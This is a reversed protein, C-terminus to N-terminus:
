FKQKINLNTQASVAIEFDFKADGTTPKVILDTASSMYLRIPNFPGNKIDLEEASFEVPDNNADDNLSLAKDGGNKKIVLFLNDIVNNDVSKIDIKVSKLLSFLDDGGDATRGFLDEDEEPLVDLNLKFLSEGDILEATGPPATFQLPLLIVLDARIPRNATISDIEISGTLSVKEEANFADKVDFSPVSPSIVQSMWNAPDAPDIGANTFEVGTGITTNPLLVSGIGSIESNLYVTGGVGNIYLYAPVEKFDVGGLFKTIENLALDSINIPISLTGGEPVSGTYTPALGSLLSPMNDPGLLPFSVLYTKVGDYRESSGSEGTYTYIAGQDGVQDVIGDNNLIDTLTNNKGFPSGLNTYIGPSGKLSISQPIECSLLVGFCVIGALIAYLKHRM